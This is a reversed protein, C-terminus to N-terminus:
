IHTIRTVPMKKQIALAGLKDLVHECIAFRKKIADSNSWLKSNGYLKCLTTHSLGDLLKTDLGYITVARPHMMLAIHIASLNLDDFNTVPPYFKDPYVGINSYEYYIADGKFQKTEITKGTSADVVTSPLIMKHSSYKSSLKSISQSQDAIVYDCDVILGALDVGIVLDHQVLDRSDIFDLSPGPCLIAISQNWAITHYLKYLGLLEPQFKNLFWSVQHKAIDKSKHKDNFREIGDVGYGRGNIALDTSFYSYYQPMWVAVIRGANSIHVTEIDYSAAVTSKDVVINIGDCLINRLSIEIDECGNYLLGDDFCGIQKLRSISAMFMYSSVTPTFSGKGRNYLNFDWRWGIRHFLSGDEEWISPDLSNIVPSILASPNSVVHELLSELWTKGVKVKNRMMIVFETEVSELAINWARARGINDTDIIIHNIRSHKFLSDIDDIRAAGDNCIIIEYLISDPTRDLITTITESLYTLDNVYLLITVPATM